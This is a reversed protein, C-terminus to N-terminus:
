VSEVGDQLEDRLHLVTEYRDDPAAALAKLLTEDVEQPISTNHESPPTPESETPQSGTLVEYALAGLRYVDAQETTSDEDPDPLEYGASDATVHDVVGRLTADTDDVLISGLSLHEYALGYRQVHHIAECAEALLKFSEATTLDRACEQLSPRDAPEVAVWPLPETGHGYISLLNTHDDMNTWPEVRDLFADFQETDITDGNSEPSLVWVPNGAATAQNIVVTPYQEVTDAIDLEEYQEVSTAPSASSESVSVTPESSSSTTKTPETAVESEDDQFNKYAFYGVGATVVGGGALLLPNSSAGDDFRFFTALGGSESTDGLEDDGVGFVSIIHETSDPTQGQASYEEDSYIHLGWSYVGPEVDSTDLNITFEDDGAENEVPIRRVSSGTGLRFETYWSENVEQHRPITLEKQDDQETIRLGSDGFPNEIWEPQGPYGVGILRPGTEGLTQGNEVNIVEVSYQNFIGDTPIEDESAEFEIRVREREQNRAPLTRDPIGDEHFIPFQIRQIQTQDQVEPRIDIHEGTDQNIFRFRLGQHISLPEGSIEIEIAEGFTEDGYTARGVHEFEQTEGANDIHEEATVTGIATTSLGIMSTFIGATQLIRRRNISKPSCDSNAQQTRVFYSSIDVM